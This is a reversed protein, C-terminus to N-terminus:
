DELEFNIKNEYISPLNSILISYKKISDIMELKTERSVRISPGSIAIAAINQGRPNFIPAAISFVGHEQEGDNICFGQKRIESLKSETIISSEQLIKKRKIYPLWALLVAGMAGRTLPLTEGIPVTRKLSNHSDVAEICVRMNNEVIYISVTEDFIDRLNKLIPLASSNFQPKHNILEVFKIINSGISYRRSVDKRLYNMEVLTNLLRSVTTTSLGTTNAIDSLSLNYDAEKFCNLIELGRKLARVGDTTSM